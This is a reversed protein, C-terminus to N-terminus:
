DFVSYEILAGNQGNGDHFPHIAEFQYHSTTMKILPDLGDNAHLFQKENSLLDCIQKEGLPPTYVIDGRSPNAIVTGLVKRVDMQTGKRHLM